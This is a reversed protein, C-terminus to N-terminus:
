DPSQSSIDPSQRGASVILGWSAGPGWEVVVEEEQGEEEGEKGEEGNDVETALGPSDCNYLCDISEGARGSARGCFSDVAGAVIRGTRREV